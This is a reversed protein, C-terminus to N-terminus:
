TTAPGPAPEFSLLALSAPTATSLSSSHNRSTLLPQAAVSDVTEEDFVRIASRVIDAKLDPHLANRTTLDVKRGFVNRMFERLDMFAVFGFRDYDVDVFLDIDSEAGVEDRAASGYLYLETVGFARIAEAHTRLRDIVEARHM